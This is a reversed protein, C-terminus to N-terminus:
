KAARAIELEVPPKVGYVAAFSGQNVALAIHGRSDVYLLPQGVPVDSFTKVFKVKIEKGGVRVPVEQGRSYGLKLFDEADLNTVLNGFPGDTAIVEATAGREDVRAAKLELRVLSGVPM